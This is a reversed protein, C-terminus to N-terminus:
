ERGKTESVRKRRKLYLLFLLGCGSILVAGLIVGRIIKIQTPKVVHEAKYGTAIIQLFQVENTATVLTAKPLNFVKEPIPVNVEVFDFLMDELIEGASNKKIEGIIVGDSKRIYYHTEARIYNTPDGLFDPMQIHPPYLAARLLQLLKPSAMRAVVVCDNTGIVEAKLVRYEYPRDISEALSAELRQAHNTFEQKILIGNVLSFKGSELDYTVTRVKGRTYLVSETEVRGTPTKRAFLEISSDPDNLLRAKSGHFYALDRTISKAKALVTEPSSHEWWREALPQALVNLTTLWLVTLARRRLHSARLGAQRRMPRHRDVDRYGALKEFENSEDHTAKHM